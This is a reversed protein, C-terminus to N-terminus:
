MEDGDVLGWKFTGGDIILRIVVEGLTVWDGHIGWDNCNRREYTKNRREGFFNKYKTYLFYIQRM